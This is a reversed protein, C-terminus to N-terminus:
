PTTEVLIEIEQITMKTMTVDELCKKTLEWYKEETKMESILTNLEVLEIDHIGLARLTQKTDCRNAYFLNLVRHSDWESHRFWFLASLIRVESSPDDVSVHVQKIQSVPIDYPYKVANISLADSDDTLAKGDLGEVELIVRTKGKLKSLAFTAQELAYYLLLEEDEHESESPILYIFDKSFGDWVRAPPSTKILGDKLILKLCEMTTGIYYTKM